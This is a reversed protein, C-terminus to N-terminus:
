RLLVWADFLGAFLVFHEGSAWKIGIMTEHRGIRSGLLPILEAFHVLSEASTAVRFRGMPVHELHIGLVGRIM